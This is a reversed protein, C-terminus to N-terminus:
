PYIVAQREEASLGGTAEMLTPIFTLSRGSRPVILGRADGGVVRKMAGETGLMGPERSNRALALGM